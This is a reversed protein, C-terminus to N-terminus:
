DMKDKITYLSKFNDQRSCGLGVASGNQVGSMEKYLFIYYDDEELIFIASMIDSLNKDLYGIVLPKKFIVKIFHKQKGTEIPIGDKNCLLRCDVTGKCISTNDLNNIIYLIEEKVNNSIGTEKGDCYYVIDEIEQEGINYKNKDTSTKFFYIFLVLVVILIISVPFVSKKM